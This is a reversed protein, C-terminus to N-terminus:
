RGRHQQALAVALSAAGPLPGQRIERAPRGFQDFAQAPQELAAARHRRPAGALQDQQARQRVPMDGGHEAQRALEVQRAQQEPTAALGRHAQTVEGQRQDDVPDDRGAGFEGRHAGQGRLRRRGAQARHELEAPHRLALDVPGQVPKPPLLLPDLPRQGPPM